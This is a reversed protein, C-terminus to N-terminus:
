YKDYKNKPKRFDVVHVKVVNMMNIHTYIITCKM